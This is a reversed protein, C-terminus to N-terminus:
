CGRCGHEWAIRRAEEMENPSEGRPDPPIRDHPEIDPHNRHEPNPQPSPKNDLPENWERWKDPRTAVLIVLLIALAKRGTFGLENWGNGIPREPTVIVKHM